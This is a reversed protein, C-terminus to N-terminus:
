KIKEKLVTIVRAITRRGNKILHGQKFTGTASKMRNTHLAAKLTSMLETLEAVSKERLETIDM